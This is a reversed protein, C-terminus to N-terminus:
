DAPQPGSPPSKEGLMVGDVETGYLNMGSDHYKQRTEAVSGAFRPDQPREKGDIFAAVDWADKDSLSGGKGLPMNAKVFAAANSITSMGAGWNYSRPGWLPPFVMTGSATKQGEGNGGHCVACSQAYVAAGNKRDFGDPKPLKPYGRGALDSGTPAGKALFYAYSELAVLVKDGLPPAKGNMSYRFCGQLREQFTNVHDNKSRYAPYKVYAAWLPASGALRGRDIHCNSCQLDNGLFQGANKQTDHFIAEGLRVMKGFDDNPIASEPPPTFSAAEAKAGSPKAASAAAAAATGADQAASGATPETPAATGQGGTGAKPETRAADAIQRQMDRSDTSAQAPAGTARSRFSAGPDGDHRPLSYGVLGSLGIVMVGIAWNRANMPDDSM